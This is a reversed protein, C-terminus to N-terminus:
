KGGIMSLVPPRNSNDMSNSPRITCFTFGECIEKIASQIFVVDRVTASRSMIVDKLSGSACFNWVALLNPGDLSLGLSRNLNVHDFLRLKYMEFVSVTGRRSSRMLAIDNRM